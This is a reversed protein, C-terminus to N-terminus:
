LSTQVIRNDIPSPKGPVDVSGPASDSPPYPRGLDSAVGTTHPNFAIEVDSVTEVSHPLFFQVTKNKGYNKLYLGKEIIKPM